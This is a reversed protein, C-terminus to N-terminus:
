RWGFAGRFLEFEAAQGSGYVAIVDFRVPIERCKEEPFSRLYAQAMRRLMTQKDRDVSTEAPTAPDRESRTKVEIFCLWDGDWGVLDVDGRLKASTWRRAVITYGQRRLEFLADREGRLGVGLHQPVRGSRRLKSALRDLHDIAWQQTDIFVTRAMRGGGMSCLLPTGARRPYEKEAVCCGNQVLVGARTQVIKGDHAEARGIDNRQDGCGAESGPEVEVGGDQCEAEQGAGMPHRQGWTEVREAMGPDEGGAGGHEQGLEDGVLDGAEVEEPVGEVGEDANGDGSEDRIVGTRLERGLHLDEGGGESGGDRQDGVAGFGGNARGDGGARLGDRIDGERAGLIDDGDAEGPHRRVMGNGGGGGSEDQEGGRNQCRPVEISCQAAEECPEPRWGIRDRECRRSLRGISGM